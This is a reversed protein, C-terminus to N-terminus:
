SAAYDVRLIGSLSRDLKVPGSRFANLAIAKTLERQLGAGTKKEVEEFFAKKEIIQDLQDDYIFSTNRHSHDPSPEGKFLVATGTAVAMFMGVKGGGSIESYDMKLGVIANAKLKKAAQELDLLAAETLRHLQKQYTKSRGGFVDRWSAAIDSFINVGFVVHASIPGLYSEITQGELSPTTTVIM